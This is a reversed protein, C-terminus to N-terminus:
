GTSFSCAAYVNAPLAVCTPANVATLPSNVPLRDLTRIRKPLSASYSM